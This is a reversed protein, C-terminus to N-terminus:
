VKPIFAKNGGPVAKVQNLGLISPTVSAAHQSLVAEYEM